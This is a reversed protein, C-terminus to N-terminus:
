VKKNLLVSLFEKFRTYPTLSVRHKHSVEQLRAGIWAYVELKEEKTFITGSVEKIKQEVFFYSDIDINKSTRVFTEIEIDLSSLLRDIPSLKM